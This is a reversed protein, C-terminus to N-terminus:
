HALAISLLNERPPSLTREIYAWRKYLQTVYQAKPSVEMSIEKPIAATHVACQGEGRRVDEGANM